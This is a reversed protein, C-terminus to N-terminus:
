AVEAILHLVRLQADLDADTLAEIWMRVQGPTDRPLSSAERKAADAEDGIDRAEHWGCPAACRRSPMSM